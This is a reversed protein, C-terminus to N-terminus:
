ALFKEEKNKSNKQSYFPLCEKLNLNIGTGITKKTITTQYGRLSQTVKCIEEIENM